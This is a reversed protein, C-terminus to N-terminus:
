WGWNESDFAVQWADKLERIFKRNL